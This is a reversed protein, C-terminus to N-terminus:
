TIEELRYAPLPDWEVIRGDACKFLIRQSMDKEEVLKDHEYFKAHFQIDVIHIHKGEDEEVCCYSVETISQRIYEGKDYVKVKEWNSGLWLQIIPLYALNESQTPQRREAYLGSSIVLWVIFAVLASVYYKKM